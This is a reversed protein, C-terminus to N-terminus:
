LKQKLKFCTKMLIEHFLLAIIIGPLSENIITHFGLIRWLIASVLGVLMMSSLAISNTRIQLIAILMAPAISGALAGIAFLILGFVTASNFISAIAAIIGVILTIFQQYKVGYKRSMKRYFSPSIDRALASSCVLIQSDATSAIVSFVGALVVGVLIPHFNQIAYLPLAQEPDSINPLLVRCIIGFLLMAFYTSYAFGLYIWKAQRVEEPSKGAMLRVLFQPQSLNFGLGSVVFGCVYAVITWAARNLTIDVLQPDIDHM